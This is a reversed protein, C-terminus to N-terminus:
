FRRGRSTYAAVAGIVVVGKVIQQVFSSVGGLNLMNSLIGLILVGVITRLVGGRGGALSTGGLVVAVIADLEFGSGALTYGSGLRAAVVLGAIGASLGSIVYVAFKVLGTNIGARRASVESGGLAYIYRGFPTRALVLWSLATLGAALIGPVPLPGLSGYAIQKFNEPAIGITRDTYIFIAGQLVSLMGFTLILPHIRALTVVLGNFVGVGLGLVLGLLVVPIALEPRGDMIGNGLVTVLGILMGVSLDIGGALIVFTQGLAVIMLPATQRLLNSLNDPSLFAPSILSAVLALVGLVLVVGYEQLWEPM